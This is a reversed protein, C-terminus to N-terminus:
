LKDIVVIFILNGELSIIFYAFTSSNLLIVILRLFIDITYFFYNYDFSMHVFLYMIIIKHKIYLQFSSSLYTNMKLTLLKIHRQMDLAKYSSYIANSRLEGHKSKALMMEIKLCFFYQTATASINYYQIIQKEENIIVHM